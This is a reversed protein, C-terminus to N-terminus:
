DNDRTASLTFTGLARKVEEASLVRRGGQEKTLLAINAAACDLLQRLAVIEESMERILRQDDSIKKDRREIEKELKM